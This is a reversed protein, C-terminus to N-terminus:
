HMHQLHFSDLLYFVLHMSYVVMIVIIRFMGNIAHDQINIVALLLHDSFHETGADELPIDLVTTYQVSAEIGLGSPCVDLTTSGRAGLLM